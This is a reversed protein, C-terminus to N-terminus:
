NVDDFTLSTKGLVTVTEIASLLVSYTVDLSSAKPLTAPTESLAYITITYEHTGVSQSCPSTYSIVAGDKNSGMYWAGDDAAGHAIETVSPDIGWLLLYHNARSPDTDNPNPFHHMSIALSQADSPVNSWSLPISDETGEMSRTECKFADMLVGNEIASSSLVIADSETAAGSGNTSGQGTSQGGDGPPPPSGGNGPAPPPEEMPGQRQFTETTTTGDVDNFVFTFFDSDTWSYEVSGLVGGITYELLYGNGAGNATLATIILDDGNIPHLPDRFARTVAQPEIQTQPSAFEDSLIVEGRMAGILYPYEDTGHYHYSGDAAEHGHYQDLPEMPSGDPELSGYIPFGDLAYAIPTTRSTSELHLPAAHYHYDDARGSHGGFDDLEGIEKSILGSANLPNFIPIGNVAIAIAGRQLDTEISVPNAAYQTQLPISWANTGTYPQPVPVQAIWAIINVMMQHDPIGNSEVYFYTSDFRTSVTGYPAFAATIISTEDAAFGPSSADTGGDIPPTATPSPTPTSSSSPAPAPTPMPTATVVSAELLASIQNLSRCAEPIEGSLILPGPDSTALVADVEQPLTGQDRRSAM